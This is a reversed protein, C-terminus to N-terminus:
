RSNGILFIKALNSRCTTGISGLLNGTLKGKQEPSYICFLNELPRSHRGDQIELRFLKLQIKLIAAM